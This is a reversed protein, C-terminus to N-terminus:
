SLHISKIDFYKNHFSTCFCNPDKMLSTMSNIRKRGFVFQKSMLTFVKYAFLEYNVLCSNTSPFCKLWDLGESPYRIVQM